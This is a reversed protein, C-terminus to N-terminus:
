KAITDTTATDTHLTTIVEVSITDATQEESLKHTFMPAFITGLIALSILIIIFLVQKKNKM